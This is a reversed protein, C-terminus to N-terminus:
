SAEEIPLSVITQAVLTVTGDDESELSMDMEAEAHV